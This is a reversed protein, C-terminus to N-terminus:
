DRVFVIFKIATVEEKGGEKSLDLTQFAPIFALDQGSTSAMRRAIAMGKVAQNVAGAGIATISCKNGQGVISAIAGGLKKVNTVSKVRLEEDKKATVATEEIM